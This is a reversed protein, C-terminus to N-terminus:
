RNAGVDYGKMAGGVVIAFLSLPISKLAGDIIKHLGLWSTPNSLWSVYKEPGLSALITLPFEIWEGYKLYTFVQFGFIGIGVLILLVGVANVLWQWAKDLFGINNNEQDNM